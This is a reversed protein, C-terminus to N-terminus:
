LSVWGESVSKLGARESQAGQWVAVAFQRQADLEAWAPLTFVVQWHRNAWNAEVTWGGPAASRQVSGLGEARIAIPAPQDARWLAGVVPLTPAGMTIWPADPVAPVLLACSDIFQRPNDSADIVAEDCRWNLAFRYGDQVTIDVDVRATHARDRDAYAKAIYGGPQFGTPATVLKISKKM